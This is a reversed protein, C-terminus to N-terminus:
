LVFLILSSRIGPHIAEPSWGSRFVLSCLSSNKGAQRQNKSTLTDVRRSGGGINYGVKASM